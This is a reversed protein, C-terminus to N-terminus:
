EVLAMKKFALNNEILSDYSGQDIIGGKDMFYITDCNMVTTLRHAIIIITRSGKLAEMEQVIYKETINDLASTAEDMILIKPNHYLARAIGIRQRQGGSFRVGREGINTYIGEPLELILSELQSLRIADWIKVDDIESEDIGFAINNRISNDALFIHQPIYGIQKQWSPINTHIDIGDVFIKGFSPQLLGLTVDVITTKGAGSSGVFAIAKGMPININIDKLSQTVAGPYQYSVNKFEIQKQLSVNSHEDFIRDQSVKENKLYEMDKWVPNISPFSFRLSSFGSLIISISPLLRISAFGFLALSPLISSIDNNRVVLSITISLMVIMAITELIPKTISNTFSQHMLGKANRDSSTYFHNIFYDERNLVRADKFGVLGETVIKFVVDRLKQLEKGFNVSKNKTYRLYIFGSFGFVFITILSIVPEIFVLLGMVLLLLLSEMVISILPIIVGVIIMKVSDYVNSLLESSNRNLHFSYPAKLYSKFLDFSMRLQIDFVIKSKYYALFTLYGNKFIFIIILFVSGWILLDNQSTIGLQQIIRYVFPIKQIMEPKAILAIFGPLAGIGVIESISGLIMLLALFLLKKKEKNTLLILLKKCYDIFM